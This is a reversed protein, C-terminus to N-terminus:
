GYTISVQGGEYHTTTGTHYNCCQLVTGNYLRPLGLTFADEVTSLGLRNDSHIFALPRFAILHATGGTWTASLTISEVSRVGTDGNQLSFVFICASSNSAATTAITTGTRGAVGASNTYSISIVPTGAGTSASLELGIYVGEGNTSGNIDRAPWTVSNITQPTGFTALGIGSNHWLRDILLLPNNITTPVIDANCLYANGSPPDTFPIQGTIPSVLAVGSMGSTNASAPSPLGTVYWNTRVGNTNMTASGMSKSLYEPPRQGAIVQALTTIAM